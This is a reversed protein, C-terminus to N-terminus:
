WIHSLTSKDYFRYRFIAKGIKQEDKTNMAWWTNTKKDYIELGYLRHCAFAYALVKPPVLSFSKLEIVPLSSISAIFPNTLELHTRHVFAKIVM